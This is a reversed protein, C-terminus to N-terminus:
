AKAPSTTSTAPHLNKYEQSNHLESTLQSISFNPNNLLNNKWFTAGAEDPARNFAEAYAANLIQDYASGNKSVNVTTGNSNHTVTATGGTAGLNIGALVASDATHEGAQIQQASSKVQNDAIATLLSSIDFGGGTATSGSNGANSPTVNDSSSYGVSSPITGSFYPGMSASIDGSNDSAQAAQANARAKVAVFGVVFVAAIGGGIILVKHEM